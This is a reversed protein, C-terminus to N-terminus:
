CYKEPGNWQAVSYRDGHAWGVPLAADIRALDDQTLNLNGGAAVERLHAVHRTGPIPLIHDGQHVLWGIALAAASVGFDAALTRFRANVELNASLNPEMFRPNGQLFPSEAISAATHPRDTLLARGVPSFAVLTTGLEACTQVLGLEPYRTSLSYESQVAAVPHIAHARRLSTPAIESFGFSKIKGAKIFGALTETVAEIDLAPDRRHVYYLDIMEVGLRTLSADLEQQLYNAENNQPRDPNATIGGKTAISFPTAGRRRKLWTGILTESRGSGYRNSTDIHTMGLDLCEDLIRLSGEDTAPGYFDTLSMAGYGVAGVLPGHQGLKRQKM